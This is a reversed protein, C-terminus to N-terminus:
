ANVRGYMQEFSLCDCRVCKLVDRDHLERDHGCQCPMEVQVPLSPDYYHRRGLKVLLRTEHDRPAFRGTECLTCHCTTKPRTIILYNKTQPMPEEFEKCWEEFDWDMWGM